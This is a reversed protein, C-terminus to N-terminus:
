LEERELRNEELTAFINTCNADANTIRDSLEKNKENWAHVHKVHRENNKVFQDNVNKFNEAM